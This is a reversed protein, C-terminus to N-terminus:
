MMNKKNKLIKNSFRLLNWSIVLFMNQKISYRQQIENSIKQQILEIAKIDVISM